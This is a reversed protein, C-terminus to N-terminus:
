NNEFDNDGTRLKWSLNLLLIPQPSTTCPLTSIPRQHSVCDGCLISLIVFSGTEKFYAETEFRIMYKGPIFQEQTLLNPIRGDGNTVGSAIHKWLRSDPRIEEFYLQIPLNRAAAGRATDLVHTTLPSGSM